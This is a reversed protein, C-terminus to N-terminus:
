KRHFSSCGRPHTAHLAGYVAEQRAQTETSGRNDGRAVMRRKLFATIEAIDRRVFDVYTPM